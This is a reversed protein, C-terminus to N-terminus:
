LREARLPRDSIRCRPVDSGDPWAHRSCQGTPCLLVWEDPVAPNVGPPNLARSRAYVGAADGAALLAEHLVNLPTAPDEGDRLAALLGELPAAGLPSHAELTTRISGLQDCIYAVDDRQEM